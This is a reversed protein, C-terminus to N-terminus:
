PSTKRFLGLPKKLFAFAILLGSTGAGIFVSSVLLARNQPASGMGGEFVEALLACAGIAVGLFAVASWQIWLRSHSRTADGQIRTESADYPLLAVTLASQPAILLVFGVIIALFHLPTSQIVYEPFVALMAACVLLVLTARRWHVQTQRQAQQTEPLSIGRVPARVFLLVALSIAAMGAWLALLEGAAAKGMWAFPHRAMAIGDSGLAVLVSLPVAIQTRAIFLKILASSSGAMHASFVRVLSLVALLCSLIMAISGVADYPDDAFPIIASLAPAHKTYSFFQNFLAAVALVALANLGPKLGITREATDKEFGM